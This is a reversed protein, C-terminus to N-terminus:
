TGLLNAASSQWQMTLFATLESRDFGDIQQRALESGAWCRTIGPRVLEYVRALLETDSWPAQGVFHLLSQHKASVRSPATVAALPEVNKREVPMILGLCYDRLPDARDAHGVVDVLKQVYAFFAAESVGNM